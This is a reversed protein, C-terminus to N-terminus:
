WSVTGGTEDGWGNGTAQADTWSPDFMVSYSEWSSPFADAVDLHWGNFTADQYRFRLWTDPYTGLYCM